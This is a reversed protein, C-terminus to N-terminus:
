PPANGALINDERADSPVHCIWRTRTVNFFQHLFTPNGDIVGGDVAPDDGVARPQLFGKMAALPRHPAAPAQVLGIDPHFALPGIAVAGDILGALGDIEEERGLPVLWGGSAKQGFGDATMPHRLRDGDIPALGIGGGDPAIILRVARSTLRWTFYRLLITSCSWRAHFPDGTGHQPEFGQLLGPCAPPM